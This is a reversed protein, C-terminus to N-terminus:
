NEFVDIISVQKVHDTQIISCSMEPSMRFEIWKRCDNLSLGVIDMTSSPKFHGKLAECVRKITKVM